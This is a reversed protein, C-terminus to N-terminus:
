KSLKPAVYLEGSYASNGGYPTDSKRAIQCNLHLMYSEVTLLVEAM